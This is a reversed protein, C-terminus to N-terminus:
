VLVNQPRAASIHRIFDSKLEPNIEPDIIFDTVDAPVVFALIGHYSFFVETTEIIFSWSKPGYGLQWPFKVVIKKRDDNNAENKRIELASELDDMEQKVTNLRKRERAAAWNMFYMVRIFIYLRIALKIVFWVWLPLTVQWWSWDIVGILKLTASSLVSFLVFLAWFTSSTRM